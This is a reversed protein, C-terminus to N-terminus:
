CYCRLIRWISLLVEAFKADLEKETYRDESPETPHLITRSLLDGKTAPLNVGNLLVLM